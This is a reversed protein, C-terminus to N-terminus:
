PAVIVPSDNYSNFKLNVTYRSAQTLTILAIYGDSERVWTDYTSGTGTSQIHWVAADAIREEGVYVTGTEPSGTQPGSTWKGSGIRSYEKGGIDVEQLQLVGRSTYTPISMTMRMADSPVRQLDGEGSANYRNAGAYFYGGIGFHGSTM